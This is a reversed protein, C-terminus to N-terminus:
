HPPKQNFMPQRPHLHLQATEWWTPADWCVPEAKKTNDLLSVQQVVNLAVSSWPRGTGMTPRQGKLDGLHLLQLRQLHLQPSQLVEWLGNDIVKSVHLPSLLLHPIGVTFVALWGHCHSELSYRHGTMQNTMLQHGKEEEEEEESEWLGGVRTHEVEAHEGHAAQDPQGRPLHKVQPAEELCLLQDLLAGGGGAGWRTECPAALLCGAFADWCGGEKSSSWCVALTTSPSLIRTKVAAVSLVSTTRLFLFFFCPFFIWMKIKPKFCSFRQLSSFFASHSMSPMPSSCGHENYKIERCQKSINCRMSYSGNGGVILQIMNSKQAWYFPHAM